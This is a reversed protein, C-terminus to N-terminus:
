ARGHDGLHGRIYHRYYGIINSTLFLGELVVAMPSEILINYYIYSSTGIMMLIRMTKNNKQFNGIMFIMTGAFIILDISSQYTFFISVFNLFLFLILFQKNTTYYCVVFRCVTLAVITGAAINGLLFYHICILSASIILCFYTKKREKYQFSMFDFLIAISVFIQSLLFSSM